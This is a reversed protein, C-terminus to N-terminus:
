EGLTVGFYGDVRGFLVDARIPDDLFAPAFLDALFPYFIWVFPLSELNATVKDFRRTGLFGGEPKRNQNRRPTVVRMYM